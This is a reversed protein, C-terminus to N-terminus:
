CITKQKKKETYIHAKDFIRQKRTKDTQFLFIHACSTVKSIIYLGNHIYNEHEHHSSLREKSYNSM